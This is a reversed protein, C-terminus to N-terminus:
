NLYSDDCKISIKITLNWKGDDNKNQRILGQCIKNFGTANNDNNQTYERTYYNLKGYKFYLNSKEYKKIKKLAM